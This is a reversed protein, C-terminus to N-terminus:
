RGKEIEEVIEVEDANIIAFMKLDDLKVVLKIAEVSAESM